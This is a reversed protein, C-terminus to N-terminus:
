NCLALPVDHIEPLADQSKRSFAWLGPALKERLSAPAVKIADKLEEPV